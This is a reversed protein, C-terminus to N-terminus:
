VSAAQRLTATHTIKVASLAKSVPCNKAADDVIKQFEEDSIGPVTAEVQLAIATITFGPDDKSITVSSSADIKSPPKGATTLAASLAMAFCGAHAAAIMEEPNTAKGDGFRSNFSYPGNYAGSGFAVQGSGQTVNGHWEARSTRKFETM